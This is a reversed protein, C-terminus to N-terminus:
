KAFLKQLDYRSESIVPPQHSLMLEPNELVDRLTKLFDTATADDVVRGDCATTMTVVTTTSITDDDNLHAVPRSAGVALICAQPPNIVASFSMIGFM